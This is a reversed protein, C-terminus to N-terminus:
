TLANVESPLTWEVLDQRVATPEDIGLVAAVARPCHELLYADDCRAEQARARWSALHLIGALPEMPGQDLPRCQQALARVIPPPFLWSQAFAAGVDAYTFGLRTQEADARHLDLPGGTLSLRAMEQPMGLHMALEGTAHILGSTFATARNHRALGAYTRALKAVNLSYRWFQEIDIGQVAKFANAMAATLTITRVQDFGALALAESVSGVKSSLQFQASNALQLLRTTLAPDTNILQSIARLDPEERDLEQLLATVVKPMSPLATKGALLEQLTM